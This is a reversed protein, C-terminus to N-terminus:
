KQSKRGGSAVRILQLLDASAEPSSRWAQMLVPNEGLLRATTEDVAPLGGRESGPNAIVSALQDLVERLQVPDLAAIEALAPNDALWAAETESLAAAESALAASGVNASGLLAAGVLALLVTAFLRFRPQRRKM